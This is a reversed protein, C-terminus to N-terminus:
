LHFAVVVLLMLSKIDYKAVMDMVKAWGVFFNVVNLFKFRLDLILMFMNHTNSPTYTTVFSMFPALIAMMKAMM